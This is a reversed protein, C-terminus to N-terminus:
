ISEGIWFMGLVAGCLMPMALAVLWVIPLVMAGFLAASIAAGMLLGIIINKMPKFGKHTERIIVLLSPASAGLQNNNLLPLSM